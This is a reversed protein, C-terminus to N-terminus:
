CANEWFLKVSGRRSAGPAAQRASCRKWGTRSGTREDDMRCLMKWAAKTREAPLAVNFGNGM